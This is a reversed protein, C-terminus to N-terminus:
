GLKLIEEYIRKRNNDDKYLFYKDVEKKQFWTMSYSKSSKLIKILEDYNNAIYGFSNNYDFYGEKYHKDRYKEYDTQYFVIPKKMYAVDFFVSSYDTILLTCNKILWQISFSNMNAIKVKSSNSKFLNIWKQIEYHPYFILEIEKIQLVKNIEDSNLIKMIELYYESNIFQKKTYNKMYNRWTPMFLIFKNKNKSEKLLDYRALGTYKVIDNSFGYTSIIYDYELKAGCIFLDPHFKKATLNPLWDKIIGHQLFIKKGKVYKPFLKNFKNIGRWSPSCLPPHTSILGKATFYAIGHMISNYEITKGILSVKEYDISKKSIVYVCNQKMKIFYEFMNFGNDGADYGRECFIYTDRYKKIFFSLILSVSLKILDFLMKIM